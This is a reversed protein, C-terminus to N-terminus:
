FIVKCGNGVKLLVILEGHEKLTMAEFDEEFM